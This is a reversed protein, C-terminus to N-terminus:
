AAAVLGTVATVAEEASRATADAGIWRWLSPSMTFAHGGVVIKLDRFREDRRVEGIIEALQWIKHPMTVSLALVSPQWQALGELVARCPVGAGLFYAQWGAREFSDTVMRLGLEHGEDAPAAAMITPTDDGSERRPAAQRHLQSALRRTTATCFHEQAVTIQNTQWLRGIEKQVPELVHSYIRTVAAGDGIGALDLIETCAGSGDGARLADLYRRATEVMPDGDDLYTPVTDPLGGLRTLAAEILSAGLESESAPLLETLLDSQIELIRKLEDTAVGHHVLMIKLWAIYNLFLAPDPLAVAQALYALHESNEHVFAARLRGGAAQVAHPREALYRAAVAEALAHREAHISGGIAWTEPAGLSPPRMPGM